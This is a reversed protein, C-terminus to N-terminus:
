EAAPTANESNGAIGHIGRLWDYWAALNDGHTASLRIVRAQPNLQRVQNEFRSVDFSVYPLLDIKNLVVLRASQFMYPYKEPKDDGETVSAIVVKAEEGLDFLAPCVLNGVNEIMLVTGPPPNLQRSASRIMDADLHCMAGTNIQLVPVGCKAIRRADNDTRQDGEIVAWPWEGAVDRLTRELLSTKGAGPSSVLNLALISRGEFWGRNQEALRNNKRMVDSHMEVTRSDRGEARSTAISALVDIRSAGHQDTGPPHVHAGGHSHPHVHSHSSGSEHAHEHAAPSGPGAMRLKPASITVGSDRAEGEPSCGCTDCM